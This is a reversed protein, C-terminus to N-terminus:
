EERENRFLEESEAECESNGCSMRSSEGDPKCSKTFAPHCRTATGKLHKGSM